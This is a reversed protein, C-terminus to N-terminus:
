SFVYDGWISFWDHLFLDYYVLSGFTFFTSGHPMQILFVGELPRIENLYKDIEKHISILTEQSFPCPLYGIIRQNSITGGHLYIKNTHYVTRTIKLPIWCLERVRPDHLISDKYDMLRKHGGLDRDDVLKQMQIKLNAYLKKETDNM